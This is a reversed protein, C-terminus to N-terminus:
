TWSSKPVPLICSLPFQCFSNCYQLGRYSQNTPYQVLLVATLLYVDALWTWDNGEMLFDNRVVVSLALVFYM